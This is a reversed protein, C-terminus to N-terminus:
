NVVEPRTTLFSLAPNQTRIGSYIYVYKSNFRDKTYNEVIQEFFPVNKNLNVLNLNVFFQSYFMRRLLSYM